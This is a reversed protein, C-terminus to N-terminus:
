SITDVNGAVLGEVAGAAKRSASLPVTFFFTAGKGPESELWITGGHLEILRKTISLGLGTGQMSGKTSGNVQHFETFISMQESRPIGVGTDCVSFRVCDNEDRWSDIRVKGEEPTFKVANSILNYLIQKFRIRDAHIVVDDAIKEEVEIRKSVALPTIVSFVEELATSAKFSELELKIRGAEIKSIDLIDNILQLLHHAGAQIHGVFHKQKQELTGAREEVLLDSFGIIANLPTRLEHSMNALFESKLRNAREVERNRLALEANAAALQETREGVRHELEENLKKIQEEAARRKVELAITELAFSLDSAIQDLLVLTGPEFFGPAPACLVLLDSIQAGSLLPFAAMSRAKSQPDALLPHLSTDNCVFHGGHQLEGSIAEFGSLSGFLSAIAQRCAVDEGLQAEAAVAKTDEDYSGIWAFIFLGKGVAARCVERFLTDRDSAQAIAKGVHILV